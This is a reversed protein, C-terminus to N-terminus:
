PTRASLGIEEFITTLVLISRVPDLGDNEARKFTSAIELPSYKGRADISDGQAKGHHM